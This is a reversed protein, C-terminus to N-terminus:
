RGIAGMVADISDDIRGSKLARAKAKGLNQDPAPTQAGGRPRMVPAAAQPVRKQQANAVATERKAKLQTLEAELATIKKDRTMLERLVVPIRHDGSAHVEQPSVGFHTAGYTLVENLESRAKTEDTKWEPIRDLLLTNQERLYDARAQRFAGQSQQVLQDHQALAPRIADTRQKLEERERTYRAPDEVSLKRWYDGDNARALVPDTTVIAQIVTNLHQAQRQLEQAIATSTQQAQQEFQTRVTAVQKKADAAEQLARSTAADRDKERDAIYEQHDRPLAKFAEKWEKSWSAPPEIAPTGAPENQGKDAGSPQTEAAAPDQAAAAADGGAPQEEDLKALAAEVEAATPEDNDEAGAAAGPAVPKAAGAPEDGTEGIAGLISLARSDIEDAEPSRNNLAM